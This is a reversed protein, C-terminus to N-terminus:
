EVADLLLAKLGHQRFHQDCSLASTIKRDGMVVFSTCDTLGWDKDARANRLALARSFVDEDIQVVTAHPNARFAAIVPAVRGWQEPQCFGDGLELFIASSTVLPIREKQIKRHWAAAVEHFKDATQLIARVFGTDVFLPDAM